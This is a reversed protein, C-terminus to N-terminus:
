GNSKSKWQKYTQRKLVIRAHGSSMRSGRSLSQVPVDSEDLVPTGSYRTLERDGDGAMDFRKPM